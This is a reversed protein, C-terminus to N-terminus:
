YFIAFIYFFYIIALLSLLQTDIHVFINALGLAWDLVIIFYLIIRALGWSYLVIIFVESALLIFVALPFIRPLSKLLVNIEIIICYGTLKYIRRYGIPLSLTTFFSSFALYVDL